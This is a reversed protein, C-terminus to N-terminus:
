LTSHRGLSPYVRGGHCSIRGRWTGIALPQVGLDVGQASLEGGELGGDLSQLSLEGGARLSEDFEELGGEESM